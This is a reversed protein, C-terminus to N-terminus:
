GDVLKVREEILKSIDKQQAPIAADALFALLLVLFRLIQKKM